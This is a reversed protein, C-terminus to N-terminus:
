EYTPLDEFRDGEKIKQVRIPIGNNVVVIVEGYNPVEVFKKVGKQILVIGNQKDQNMLNLGWEM